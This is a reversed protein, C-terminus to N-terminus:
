IISVDDGYRSAMSSFPAVSVACEGGLTLIREPMYQQIVAFADALQKLLIEKAEVGDVQELGENGMSIPVVARPGTASPLIADLVRSGLAYGRRAVEFPFESALEQVSITAAGQWQPCLLRLVTAEAASSKIAEVSM